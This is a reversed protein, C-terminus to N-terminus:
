KVEQELQLKIEKIDEESFFDLYEYARVMPIDYFKSLLAAEEQKVPKPWKGYRNRPRISHLLFQFHMENDLDPYRNVENAYLISDIHFSFSRTTLFKNYDEEVPLKQGKNIATAYKFVNNTAM